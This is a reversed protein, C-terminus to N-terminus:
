KRVQRILFEWALVITLGSLLGVLGALIVKSKRNPGVLLAPRSAPDFVVAPPYLQDLELRMQNARQRAVNYDEERVKLDSELEALRAQLRGSEMGINADKFNALVASANSYRRHSEDVSHQMQEIITNLRESRIRNLQQQTVELIMDTMQPALYPDTSTYSVRIIGDGQDVLSVGTALTGAALQMRVADSTDVGMISAVLQPNLDASRVVPRHLIEQMVTRSTMLAQYLTLDPSSSTSSGVSGLTGGKQSSTTAPVLLATSQFLNPLKRAKWNGIWGALGITLVLVWSRKLLIVLIDRFELEDAQM